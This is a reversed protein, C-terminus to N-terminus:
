TFFLQNTVNNASRYVYSYLFALHWPSRENEYYISLYLEIKVVRCHIFHMQVLCPNKFYFDSFFSLEDDVRTAAFYRLNGLFNRIKKLGCGIM